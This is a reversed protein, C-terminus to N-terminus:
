GYVHIMDFQTREASKKASQAVKAAAHEPPEVSGDRAGPSVTGAVADAPDRPSTIAVAGL